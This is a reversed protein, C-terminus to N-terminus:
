AVSTSPGFSRSTVERLFPSRCFASAQEIRITSRAMPPLRVRRRDGIAAIRGDAILVVSDKVDSEVRGEKSVDILTAGVIAVYHHTPLTMMVAAVSSALIM